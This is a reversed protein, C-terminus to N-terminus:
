CRSDIIRRSDRFGGAAGFTSYDIYPFINNKEEVQLLWTTQVNGNSLADHIQYFNGIHECIRARAYEESIGSRMIFAWDLTQALLIERAAQNLARRNFGQTNQFREALEVMREIGAHVHRYIWDNQHNLLVEPYGTGWSSFAPSVTTKVPNEALYASPTVLTIESNERSFNRIVAELWQIGEFWWHGFLEASFLLTFIPETPTNTNAMRQHLLEEFHGAHGVAMKSAHAPIYIRQATAPIDATDTGIAYYKYGTNIRFNESNIYPCIYEFDLEHGIDRDFNRYDPNGPYGHTDSWVLNVLEYDQVFFVVGNPTEFPISTGSGSYDKARLVASNDLYFFKLHSKKLIEELGPYYGGGSLWIGQLDEGFNRNYSERTAELHAHINGPYHEYFPLFPSTGPTTIIEINGKKQHRRFEALINRKYVESYLELNKRFMRLYMKAVRSYKRNRITRKVERKGLEIRNELYRVYHKQLLEDNLMTALSSSISITLGAPIGDDDLKDLMRILPIYSESIAEFLWTEELFNEYEPHRIFPLHAHM